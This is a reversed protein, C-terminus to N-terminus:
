LTLLPPPVEGGLAVRTGDPSFVVFKQEAAKEFADVKRDSPILKEQSGVSVEFLRCAM